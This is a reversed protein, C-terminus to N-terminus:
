KEARACLRFGYFDKCSNEYSYCGGASPNFWRLGIASSFKYRSCFFWSASTCFDVAVTRNVYRRYFHNLNKALCVASKELIGWKRLGLSRSLSCKQCWKMWLEAVFRLLFSKMTLFYMSAGFFENFIWSFIATRFLILCGGWIKHKKQLSIRFNEHFHCSRICVLKKKKKKKISMLFKSLNLTM